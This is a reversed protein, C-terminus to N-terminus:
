SCHQTWTHQDERDKWVAEDELKKEAGVAGVKRSFSTTRTLLEMVKKLRM